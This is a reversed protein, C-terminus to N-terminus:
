ADRGEGAAHGGEVRGHHREGRAEVVRGTGQGGGAGVGDDDTLDQGCRVEGGGGDGRRGGGAAGQRPGADVLACEGAGGGDQGDQTQGHAAPGAARRTCSGWRRTM